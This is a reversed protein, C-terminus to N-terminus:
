KSDGPVGGGGTGCNEGADQVSEDTASITKIEEIRLVSFAHTLLPMVSLIGMGLFKLIKM